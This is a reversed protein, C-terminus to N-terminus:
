IYNKILLLPHRFTEIFVLITFLFIRGINCRICPFCIKLEDAQFIPQYDGEVCDDALIAGFNDHLGLTASYKYPPRIDEVIVVFGCDM